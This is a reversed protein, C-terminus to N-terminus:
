HIFYIFSFSLFLPPIFYIPFHFSLFLGLMILVLMLHSHILPDVLIFLNAPYILFFLM